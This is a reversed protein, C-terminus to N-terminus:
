LEDEDDDEDYDEQAEPIRTETVSERSAVRSKVSGTRQLDIFLATDNDRQFVIIDAGDPPERKYVATPIDNGAGARFHLTGDREFIVAVLDDVRIREVKAGEGRRRKSKQEASVNESEWERYKPLDSSHVGAFALDFTITRDAASARDPNFIEEAKWTGLKDNYVRVGEQFFVVLFRNRNVVADLRATNFRSTLDAGVGDLKRNKLFESITPLMMGFSLALIAMVVMVEILTFGRRLRGSRRAIKLRDPDCDIRSRGSMM